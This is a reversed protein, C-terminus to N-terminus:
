KNAYLRFFKEKWMIDKDEASWTINLINGRINQELLYAVNHIYIQTSCHICKVYSAYMVISPYYANPRKIIAFRPLLVLDDTVSSFDYLFRPDMEYADLYKNYTWINCDIEMDLLDNRIFDRIPQYFGINTTFCEMLFVGSLYHRLESLPEKWLNIIKKATERKGRDINKNVWMKYKYDGWDLGNAIHSLLLDRLKKEINPPNYALNNVGKCEDLIVIAEVGIGGNKKLRESIHENLEKKEINHKCILEPM